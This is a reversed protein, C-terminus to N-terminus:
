PPISVARLGCTKQTGRWQFCCILSSRSWSAQRQITSFTDYPVFEVHFFEIDLEDLVCLAMPEIKHLVYSNYDFYM